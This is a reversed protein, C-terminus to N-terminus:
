ARKRRVLALAALGAGFLAIGAPEPTVIIGSRVQFLYQGPVGDNSATVLQNAGGDILAGCVGSGPVEYSTGAGNNFGVHACTGGLGGHGGSADGTEWQMSGYNFYIDANGVGLDSRNVLLLQFNNLKDTHESYYGVSPWNVAFAAHGGYTGTGFNVINGTRTDVDGFFPALIPNGTAGTIAFPTFTSLPANFTINGNNNIFATTFNVGYLDLTFGLSQAVPTGPPTGSGLGNAPYTGDDNALFPTGGIGPVIPNALAATAGLMTGAALLLGFKTM